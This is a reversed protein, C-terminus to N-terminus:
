PRDKSYSSTCFKGCSNCVREHDNRSLDIRVIVLYLSLALLYVEVTAGGNLYQAASRVFAVGFVLFINLISHLLPRDFGLLHQLVGLFILGYGLLFIPLASTGTILTSKLLTLIISLVGGFILGICGSCYVKGGLLFVHTSFAGCDPHHGQYGKVTESRASGDRHILVSVLKPYLGVLIGAICIMVFLGDAIERQLPFRPSQYYFVLGFLLALALLPVFVLSLYGNRWSGLASIVKNPRPFLFPTRKKYEYYEEGFSEGLRREERTKVLIVNIILVVVPMLTAMGISQFMLGMGLPLMSYGLLMPNRTYAYLGTTVLRNTRDEVNVGGWPLGEGLLYLLRTSKIGIGLGVIFVFSGILLNLPFPPFRQLNFTRDLWFGLFYTFVPFFIFISFYSLLRNVRLPPSRKEM